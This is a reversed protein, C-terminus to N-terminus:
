SSSLDSSSVTYNSQSVICTRMFIFTFQLVESPEFNLIGNVSCTKYNKGLKHISNSVAEWQFEM